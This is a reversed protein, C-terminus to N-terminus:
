AIAASPRVVQGPEWYRVVFPARPAAGRYMWIRWVGRAAGDWLVRAVKGRGDGTLLRVFCPDLQLVEVLRAGSTLRISAGEGRNCRACAPARNEETDEGGHAVPEIHDGDVAPAGCYVCAEGERVRMLSPHRGWRWRATRGFFISRARSLEAPGPRVGLSRLRPPDGDVEAEFEMGRLEHLAIADRDPFRAAIGALLACDRPTDRLRVEGLDLRLIIERALLRAREVRVMVSSM